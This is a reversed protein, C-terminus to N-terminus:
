NWEPTGSPPRGCLPPSLTRPSKLMKINATFEARPLFSLRRLAVRLTRVGLRIAFRFPSFPSIVTSSIDAFPRLSPPPEALARQRYEISIRGRELSIACCIDPRCRHKLISAVRITVTANTVADCTSGLRISFFFFPFSLFYFLFSIFLFSISNIM